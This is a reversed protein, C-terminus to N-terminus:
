EGVLFKKVNLLNVFEQRTASIEIKELVVDFTINNDNPFTTMNVDININNIIPFFDKQKSILQSTQIRDKSNIYRM